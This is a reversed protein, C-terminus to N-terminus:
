KLLIFVKGTALDLLYPFVVLFVRGPRLTLTKSHLCFILHFGYDYIQPNESVKTQLSKKYGTVRRRGVMGGNM